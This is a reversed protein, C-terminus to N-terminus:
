NGDKEEDRRGRLAEAVDCILDLGDGTTPIRMISSDRFFATVCGEIYMMNGLCKGEDTRALLGLLSAVIQTKNEM